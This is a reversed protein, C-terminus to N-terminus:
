KGYFEDLKGSRTKDDFPNTEQVAPIGEVDTDKRNVATPVNEVSEVLEVQNTHSKLKGIIEESEDAKVVLNDVNEPAPVDELGGKNVNLHKVEVSSDGNTEVHGSVDQAFVTTSGASFIAM